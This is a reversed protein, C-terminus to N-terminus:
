KLKLRLLRDARKGDGNTGVLYLAYAGRKLKRSLKLKIKGKGALKALSGKGVLKGKITKVYLGAQIRSANGTLGVTLTKKVKRAAPLRGALKVALQDKAVVQEGGGGGGSPPAATPAPTAAPTPDPATGAPCAGVVYTGKPGADDAAGLSSAVGPIGRSIFTAVDPSKLTKGKTAGTAAPIDIEIVGNPGEHFKGTGAGDSQYSTGSPGGYTGYNFTPASDGVNLLAGVFKPDGDTQWRVYWRAGTGAAPLDQTLDRVRVYAKPKGGPADFWVELIDLNADEADNLPDTMAIGNCGPKPQDPSQAGAIGATAAVAGALGLPVLTRRFPM